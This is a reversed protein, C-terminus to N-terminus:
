PRYSLACRFGGGPYSNDPANRNRGAARVGLSGDGWAGGRLVRYEGTDPGQPNIAGDALTGYYGPAYWDNVWEWVNGSLDYAGVWSVGGPKSGVLATEGGVNGGYVVNDAVFADGWPYVLGDPGRAAYEWEAETPLRAGRSECHALSDTWSICIRPQNDGSSLWICGPVAEEVQANTVEYVDIWFPEEFCVEHVPLEDSDGEQSGMQFCGAPVLAMLAGNITEAYPEWDASRTVGAEALVRVAEAAAPPGPKGFVLYGLVGLALLATASGALWLPNYRRRPAREASLVQDVQAPIEDGALPDIDVLEPLYAPPLPQANYVGRIISSMAQHTVRAARCFQLHRLPGHIDDSARPEVLLPLIPKGLRAALTYEWRCWLSGLSARSIVYVFVDCRTVERELRAIWVQGGALGTEDMFPFFGAAFLRQQLHRVFRKNKRSYSLFIRERGSSGPDSRGPNGSPQKSSNYQDRNAQNKAIFDDGANRYGATTFDSDDPM